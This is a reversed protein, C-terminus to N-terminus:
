VMAAQRHPSTPERCPNPGGPEQGLEVRGDRRSPPDRRMPAQARVQANIKSTEKLAASAISSSLNVSERAAAAAIDWQEAESYYSTARKRVVRTLRRRLLM